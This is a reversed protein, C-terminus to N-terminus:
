MGPEIPKEIAGDSDIWDKFGGINYVKDYGMDKLVGEIRDTFRKDCTTGDRDGVVFDPHELGPFETAYQAAHSPMSHCNIHWASGHSANRAAAPSWGVNASM